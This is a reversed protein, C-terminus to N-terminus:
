RTWAHLARQAYSDHEAFYRLWEEIAARQALDLLSLRLRTRDLERDEVPLLAFLTYEILDATHSTKSFAALLYAAIYARFGLPGLAAIMERHRFLEIHPICSWHLGAFAARLELADISRQSDPALVDDLVPSSVAAFAARIRTEIEPVTLPV